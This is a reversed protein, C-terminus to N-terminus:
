SHLNDTSDNNKDHTGYIGHEIKVKAYFLLIAGAASLPTIILVAAVISFITYFDVKSSLRSLLAALTGSFGALAAFLGVKKVTKRFITPNIYRYGASHRAFKSTEGIATFICILVVLTLIISSIDFFM